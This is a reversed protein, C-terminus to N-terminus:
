GDKGFWVHDVEHVTDIEDGWRTTSISMGSVHRNRSFVECIERKLPGLNKCPLQVIVRLVTQIDAVPSKAQHRRGLADVLNVRDVFHVM